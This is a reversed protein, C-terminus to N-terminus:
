WTRKGLCDISGNPSEMKESKIYKYDIEILKFHFKNVLCCCVQAIIRHRAHGKSIIYLNADADVMLTESDTESWSYSYLSYINDGYV